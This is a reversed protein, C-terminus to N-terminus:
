GAPAPWEHRGLFSVRSRPATPFAARVTGGFVDPVADVESDVLSLGFALDLSRVPSLMLEIEGGKADADSNTVQSTLSVLSFAQYDRYGLFAAQEPM